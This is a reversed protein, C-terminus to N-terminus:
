RAIGFSFTVDFEWQSMALGITQAGPAELVNPGSVEKRFARMVAFTIEKERGVSKSLGFTLHQEVVGPAVINFLMESEPIPQGQYSYGGRWTLGPHSEYQVGFKYAITDQWAFGAGDELGLQSTALNPLLPNAISVVNNYYIGQVDFLFALNQNPTIATGVTWTYPIDFDGNEAFLGAYNDFESMYIKTQYSAGVSVLDHLRGM